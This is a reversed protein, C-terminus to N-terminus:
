VYGSAAYYGTALLGIATYGYGAKFLWTGTRMGLVLIGLLEEVQEIGQDTTTSSISM